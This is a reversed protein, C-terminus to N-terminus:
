KGAKRGRKGTLIFTRTVTETKGKKGPTEEVFRATRNQGNAAIRIAAMSSVGDVTETFTVSADPGNEIMKTIVEDWPNEVKPAVYTGFTINEMIGFRERTPTQSSIEIIGCVTHM